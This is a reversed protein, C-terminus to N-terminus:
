AREPSMFPNGIYCCEEAGDYPFSSEGDATLFEIHLSCAYTGTYPPGGATEFVAQEHCPQSIFELWACEHPAEEGPCPVMPCRM